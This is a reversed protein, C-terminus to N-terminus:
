THKARKTDPADAAEEEEEVSVESEESGVAEIELDDLEDEGESDSTGIFYMGANPYLDNAILDALESGNEDDFWCFFSAEENESFEDSDSAPEDKKAATILCKGEKWDIKHNTVQTNGKDSFDFEKVLTTNTFYPNDDFVFVVKYNIPNETSRNIEINKLYAIAAADEMEILSTIIPHKELCTLWFKPIKAIVDERKKYLPAKKLEYKAHLAAEIVDIDKNIADLEGLPGALEAHATGNEIAM